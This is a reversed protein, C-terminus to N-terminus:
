QNKPNSQPIAVIDQPKVYTITEFDSKISLMNKRHRDKLLQNFARDRDARQHCERSVAVLNEVLNLKKKAISRSELHHIDVAKQGCGCECAIFDSEDYGFYKLYAKTYSKM